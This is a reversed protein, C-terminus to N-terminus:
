RTTEKRATTTLLDDGLGTLVAGAHDALTRALDQDIGGALLAGRAYVFTATLREVPTTATALRAALAARRRQARSVVRRPRGDGKALRRGAM